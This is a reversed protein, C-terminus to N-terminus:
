TMGLDRPARHSISDQFVSTSTNERGLNLSNPLTLLYKAICTNRGGVPPSFLREQVFSSSPFSGEEVLAQIGWGLGWALELGWGLILSAQAILISVVREAHGTSNVAESDGLRNWIGSSEQFPLTLRRVCDRWVKKGVWMRKPNLVILSSLEARGPASYSMPRQKILAMATSVHWACLPGGWILCPATSNGEGQKLLTDSWLWVVAAFSICPIFGNLWSHNCPLSCPSYPLWVIDNSEVQLRKRYEFSHWREPGDALM